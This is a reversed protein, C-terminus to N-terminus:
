LLPYESLIELRLAHIVIKIPYVHVVHVISHPREVTEREAAAASPSCPNYDGHHWVCGCQAIVVILDHVVRVLAGSHKELPEHVRVQSAEAGGGRTHYAGM